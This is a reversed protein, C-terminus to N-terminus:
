WKQDRPTILRPPNPATRGDLTESVEVFV